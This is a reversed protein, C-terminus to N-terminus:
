PAVTGGDFPRGVHMEPVTIGAAGLNAPTELATKIGAYVTVADGSTIDNRRYLQQFGWATYVGETVKARDTASMTSGALAIDNLKVGNFSCFIAGNGRATIADNLSLWTVLDAKVPAGFADAGTDDLVTVAAGTKGMDTRLASGSSYGGNGAIDNGWVTSKNDALQGASAPVNVGGAPVLQITTLATGSSVNTVYQKVANAVGYGTEGLYTTRTGSGDNRGTGFVYGANPGPADGDPNDAAVGSFLSRPQFGNTMLARFQQSTVNTVPSGENTLMTFVVVGCTADSPQLSFGSYPTAAKSVDSFAIESQSAAVTKAFLPTDKHTEGGGIAAATVLNGSIETYYTPDSAPSDVLARIGEVSGNFSTRVTTVGAIGPFTGKFISRTAGTYLGSAQDHAFQYAANSANYKARIATLAAARFATAGTIDVTVDGYATTCFTLASLAAIQKTLKM